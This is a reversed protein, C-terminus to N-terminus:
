AMCVFPVTTQSALQYEVFAEGPLFLNVIKDGFALCNVEIPTDKRKLWALQAPGLLYSDPGYQTTPQANAGRYSRMDLLFLDLLPGYPIKRYIRGPEAPSYRLPPM